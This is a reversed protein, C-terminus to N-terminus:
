ESAPVLDSFVRRWSGTAGKWYDGIDPWDAPGPDGVDCCAIAEHDIRCGPDAVVLRCGPARERLAGLTREFDSQTTPLDREHPMDFCGRRRVFIVDRTDRLTDAWRGALFRWKQQLADITSRWSGVIQGAADRGFEHHLFIDYKTNIITPLPRGNFPHIYISPELYRADAVDSFNEAVLPAVSQLPTVIWDFPFAPMDGFFDHIQWAVECRGGLSIFLPRGTM